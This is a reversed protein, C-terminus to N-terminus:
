RSQLFGICSVYRNVKAINYM